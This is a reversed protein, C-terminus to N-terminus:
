RSKSVKQSAYIVYDKRHKWYVSSAPAQFARTSFFVCEKWRSFFIRQNDFVPVKRRFEVLLRKFQSGLYDVFRALISWCLYDNIIQKNQNDFINSLNALYERNEICIREPRTGGIDALRNFFYTWNIHPFTEQLQTINM